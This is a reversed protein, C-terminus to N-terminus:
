LAPQGAPVQRTVDVPVVKTVEVPVVRTMDQTIVQPTPAACAALTMAMMGLAVMVILLKGPASKM